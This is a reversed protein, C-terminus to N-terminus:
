KWTVDLPNRQPIRQYEYVPYGIMMAGCVRHGAPIELYALIARNIPLAAMLVGAWCTGLGHAHAALDVYELSIVGDTLPDYPELSAYAVILHPAGRFVPDQGQDWGQTMREFYPISRLGEAVMGALERVRERHEIVIWKMPQRNTGTPAWRTIELIRLLLERPVAKDQYVRVSRRTKLFHAAADPTMDLENQVSDLEEPSIGELSLAQHPCVVVCHGCRICFQEALPITRPVQGEKQVLLRAPCEAVCIGDRMCKEANISILAM